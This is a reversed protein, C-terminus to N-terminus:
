TYHKFLVYQEVPRILHSITVIDASATQSTNRVGFSIDYLVFQHEGHNIM